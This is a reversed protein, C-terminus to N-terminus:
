GRGAAPRRAAGVGDDSISMRLEGNELSARLQIESAQAYKATNTLAEGVVYYAAAEVSEPLRRDVDADLAVPIASRRALTKIAPGLGGRPLIAPHIGRSVGLLFVAGLANEPAVRKLLLVLALEAAIFGAAVIVGLWIPPAIPRLLLALLRRYLTQWRSTAAPAV